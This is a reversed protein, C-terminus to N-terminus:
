IYKKVEKLFNGGLKEFENKFLEIFDDVAEHVCEKKIYMDNYESWNSTILYFCDNFIEIKLIENDDDMPIYVFEKENENYWKYIKIAFDLIAFDDIKLFLKNDICISFTASFALINETKHKPKRILKYNISFNSVDDM